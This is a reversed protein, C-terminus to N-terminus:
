GLLWGKIQLNRVILLRCWLKVNRICFWFRLFTSYHTCKSLVYVSTCSNKFHV